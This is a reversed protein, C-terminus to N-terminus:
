RIATARAPVKHLDDEIAAATGRLKPLIVRRAQEVTSRRAQLSVNVAAVVAGGRDRIPVAVSRLGEELEEDAIAWGWTRVRELEARLADRGTITKATRAVLDATSLYGDLDPPPLAALLVRGMSTCYAPFRTGITIAVTMIRSAAVRAVYAIDHGDLVSLSSSEHVDAVLRELHPQAVDPMTLSSLYSYGLELVRPTLAFMRGDTHVYGLEALTLLLRRATARTLGTVRAVDSLTLEPRQADFARIVSLGRQLSQVHESM